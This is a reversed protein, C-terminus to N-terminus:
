KMLSLYREEKDEMIAAKKPDEEHEYGLIHLMGHIMMWALARRFTIGYKTADKRIFSPCLVVEGLEEAQFKEDAPFSLVNTSYDKGRYGKNLERMRKEGVLVVSIDGEVHEKKLVEGGLQELAQKNIATKTRNHLGIM